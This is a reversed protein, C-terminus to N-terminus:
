GWNVERAIILNPISTGNFDQEPAIITDRDGNAFIIQVDYLYNGFPLGKTDEWELWITQGVKQILPNEDIAFKKVTFAIVDGEQLEYPQGESDVINIEFIATDGRTLKIINDKITLM